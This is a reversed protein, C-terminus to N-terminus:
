VSVIGTSDNKAPKCVCLPVRRKGGCVMCLGAENSWGVALVPDFTRYSKEAESGPRWFMTLVERKLKDKKAMTWEDFAQADYTSWRFLRNDGWIRDDIDSVKPMLGRCLTVGLTLERLIVDARKWGTATWSLTVNRRRLQPLFNAVQVPLSQSERASAVGTIEDLLVDGDTFDFLQRFDTFPVYLDHPLGTDSDLIAVTSLVRRGRELSPLLDHVMALSKGTGNGGIYARISYGRRKRRSKGKGDLM